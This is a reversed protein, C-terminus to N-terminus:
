VTKQRSIMGELFAQLSNKFDEIRELEFRAVEAKILKSVHDFEHKAELARREAQMRLPNLTLDSPTSSLPGRVEAIQNLSHSLTQRGQARANEHAQKVRRVNNDANQWAHYTRIRGHFALQSFRISFSYM